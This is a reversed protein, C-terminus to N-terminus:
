GNFVEGLPNRTEEDIIILDDQELFSAIDKIEDKIDSISYNDAVISFQDNEVDSITAEWMMEERKAMYKLIMIFSKQELPRTTQPFKVKLKTWLGM